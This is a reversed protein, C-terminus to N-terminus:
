EPPSAETPDGLAATVLATDAYEVLERVKGGALRYVFCYANNYPMNRKTMVDGRAEVVVFDGEAIVRIATSKYSTAFKTRLPALLDRLASEKGEYTKSWPTTGTVTWRVDDALCEVFPRSNGKAMESFVHQLLRKNENSEM